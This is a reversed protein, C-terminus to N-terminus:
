LTQIAWSPRPDRLLTGSTRRRWWMGLGPVERFLGVSSKPDRLERNVEAVSKGRFGIVYDYTEYEKGDQASVGKSFETNLELLWATM